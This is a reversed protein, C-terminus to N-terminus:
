DDQTLHKLVNVGREGVARELADEAAVRFRRQKHRVLEAIFAEVAPM